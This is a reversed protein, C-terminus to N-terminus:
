STSKTSWAAEPRKPREPWFPRSAISKFDVFNDIKDLRSVDVTQRCTKDVKLRSKGSGLAEVAKKLDFDIPKERRSKTLIPSIQRFLRRSFAIKSGLSEAGKQALLLSGLGITWFHALVAEISISSIEISAQMSNNKTNKITFSFCGLGGRFCTKLTFDSATLSKKLFIRKACLALEPSNFFM